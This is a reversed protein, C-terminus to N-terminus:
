CCHWFYEKLSPSLEKTENAKIEIEKLILEEYGYYQFNVDYIGPPIDELIFNGKYDSTTGIIKGDVEIFLNVFPLGYQENIEDSIFGKITGADKDTQGFVFLSITFLLIYFLNKM